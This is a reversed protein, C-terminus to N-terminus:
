PLSWEVDTYAPQWMAAGTKVNITILQRVNTSRHMTDTIPNYSYHEARGRYDVHEEDIHWRTTLFGEIRGQLAWAWAWEVDNHMTAKGNAKSARRKVDASLDMAAALGGVRFAGAIEPPVPEGDCLPCHRLHKNNRCLPCNM